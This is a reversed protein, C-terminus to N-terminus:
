NLLTWRVGFRFYTEPTIYNYIQSFRNGTYGGLINEYKAFIRFSQVRFSAFGDLSPYAAVNGWEQVQFQGTLPMYSPAAWASVYRVDFGLQTLMMKKFLKGEWYLSNKSYVAPLRVFKETANQVVITNDLHFQGFKFNQNVILQLISLPTNTQKPTNTTDFYVMNNLLHYAVTVATKTRPIALTGSLNSELTKRFNNDWVAKQMVFLNDQILSPEYLQSTAKATLSGVGKWNFFLEGSLRYDGVNYGLLNLHAYTELKVNDNPTYNWRGRLILNNINRRGVEQNINHFAHVLGVEFWDNQAAPKALPKRGLQKIILSDMRRVSDTKVSDTKILNTKVSELGDVAQATKRRRSTSLSVSNEVMRERVYVRVGRLDTILTKYFNTDRITAQNSVFPDNAFYTADRFTINHSALFQRKTGTSDRRNLKLNQLYNYEFKQHRTAGNDLLSEVSALTGDVNKRFSTTDLGGVDFQKAINSTFTFFGDYFQRNVWLGLGFAVQRGKPPELLSAGDGSFLKREFSPSTVISSNFVRNYDISLHVGNAFNRAFRTRVVGDTQQAGSYFIDSFPKGQEYFKIDANRIQYLDFQHFGIDLGRRLLPQYVSPYAATGPMGLHFYDFQRFRAPDYQQFRNNLLTDNEPFRVAPDAAYFYRINFTDVEVEQQISDFGTSQNQTQGFQGSGSNPFQTPFQASITNTFFLFIAGFLLPYQGCPSRHLPPAFVNFVYRIGRLYGIRKTSFRYLSNIKL